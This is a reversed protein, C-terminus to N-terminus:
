EQKLCVPEQCKHCILIGSKLTNLEERNLYSITCACSVLKREKREEEPLYYTHPTENNVAKVCSSWEENHHLGLDGYKHYAVIHAMEHVIANIKDKTSATDWLKKSFDIRHLRPYCQAFKGFIHKLFQYTTLAYM